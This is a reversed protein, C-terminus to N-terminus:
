NKRFSEFCFHLSQVTNSAVPVDDVAKTTVPKGVFLGLRQARKVSKCDTELDFNPGAAREGHQGLTVILM